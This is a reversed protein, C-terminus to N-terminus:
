KALEPAIQKCADVLGQVSAVSKAFMDKEHVKDFEIEVIREIGNAGIMAPVGVYMDKLGYADMAIPPVPLVRKSADKLYSEAM